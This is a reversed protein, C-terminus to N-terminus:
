GGIGRRRQEELPDVVPTNPDPSPQKKDKDDGFIDEFLEDFSEFEKRYRLGVGTRNQRGGGIQPETSQYARVRLQRDDTLIYEVVLDGAFAAGSTGAVQTSGVGSSLILRDNFLFLRPNVKFESGTQADTPNALTAAQYQSYSVSLDIDSIVGGDKVLNGVLDTLFLSLQQSLMETVTNNVTLNLENGTFALDSPLFQGMVVLAFVQRNLENPDRRLVRLKSEVYNKLEGTIDPFDIDFTIEPEYLKGSLYMTLDVDTSRQAASRVQQSSSTVLYESIFNSVPARLGDYEAALNLTAGFPDGTWQITGGQRVEFPKNVFNLLTFLYDGEEVVYTGYMRLDQDGRGFIIQVDGTGVGRIVDGAQEDFILKTVADPTFTIDMKIDVGRLEPTVEPLDEDSKSKDKFRIFSVEGATQDYSVPISIETGPGTVAQVEIDTQNFNNSFKVRGSGIGTGYYVPNDEITTELFLFRPSSITLGLGLGKLNQHTLGGKVKAKNGFKDLVEVGSADFLTNNIKVEGYPVYYTTGLYNIKSSIDRGVASGTSNIEKPTGYLHINGDVMGTTGSVGDPVWYEIIDAPFQDLTIQFDLYNPQADVVPAGLGRPTIGPLNYFGKAILQRGDERDETIQLYADLRSQLNPASATLSLKGWDDGNIDLTDITINARIGTQDFVDTMAVEVDVRGSLDLPKYIWIDNVPRLEINQLNLKLGRDGISELVIRRSGSTLLFDKTRLKGRGIQVFNDAAISWEEGLLSIGSQDFSVLVDKGVPYVRGNLELYDGVQNYDKNTIGFVITDRYLASFVTLDDLRKRDNQWTENISFNFDGEDRESDLRIVIDKFENNALTLSDLSLDVNLYERDSDFRANLSLGNIEKLQPSILQLYEQRDKLDIAVNIKQSGIYRDVSTLNLRDAYGRYNQVLYNKIAPVVREVDYSGTFSAELIDSSISINRNLTDGAAVAFLTDIRYQKGENLTVVFDGMGVRGTLSSPDVGLVNFDLNGALSLKDKTLNLAQLDLENISATFEFRPIRGSFDVAGAFRLDLNEESIEFIGDFLNKNLTGDISFNEYNYNRFVFSNVTASLNASADAATLGVGDAVNANFTVRGFEPNGSWSGLDFDRLQLNGSYAARRRGEKTNLRMDMEADGIETRLNGYAVFDVFFGDFSGDFTFTGIKDFNTPLNINPILQRVTQISTRLREVRLNLSQNEPVALDRSSFNGEFLLGEGVRISLDRGRLNNVRGSVKGSISLTQERNQQFFPNVDLGPVFAMIDGLQVYADEEFRIDMLVAENFEAWDGWERFKFVLTDGLQTNPTVLKMSNLEVRRDNVVLEEAALTELTFGSDTDVSIEQVRATLEGDNYVMDKVDVLIDFVDLHRFNLVGPTSLPVPEKRFNQVILQGNSVLFNEVAFYPAITTDTVVAEGIDEIVETLEPLDLSDTRTVLRVLPNNLEFRQLDFINRQLDIENFRIIGSTLYVDQDAARTTNLNTFHIDDLRVLDANLYFPRKELSDPRAFYDVLFQFNVGEATRKLGVRANSLKLEEIELRNALLARLGTNFNATLDGAYLLTDGDLDELYFGELELGDFFEIDIRELSVTTELEASLYQTLEKVLRNQVWPINIAVLVM